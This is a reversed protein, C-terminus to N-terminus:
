SGDGLWSQPIAEHSLPQAIRAYSKGFSSRSDGDVTHEGVTTTHVLHEIVHIKSELTNKQINPSSLLAFICAQIRTGMVTRAASQRRHM